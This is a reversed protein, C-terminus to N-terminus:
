LVPEKYRIEWDAARKSKCYVGAIVESLLERLANPDNGQILEPLQAVRDSFATWDAKPADISVLRSEALRQAETLRPQLSLYQETPVIGQMWGLTLRELQAKSESFERDLTKRGKAYRQQAEQGAQQWSDVLEAVASPSLSLALLQQKLWAEVRDARVHVGDCDHVFNTRDTETTRRRNCVFYDYARDYRKDRLRNIYMRGGCLGCRLLGAIAYDSKAPVMHRYRQKLKIQVRDWLEPAVLPEHQGQYVQGKWRIRGAYIPNIILRRIGTRSYDYGTTRLWRSAETLSDGADVREFIERIVPAIAPDFSVRRDPGTSVGLANRPGHPWLGQKAKYALAPKIRESLRRSESENLIAQLGLMLWNTLDELTSHVEVGCEQMEEVAVLTQSARRSFRSANFVVLHNFNGAHAAKLMQRFGPRDGNTAFASEIDQYEAVVAWEHAKCYETARLRQVDLSVSQEGAQEEKSVRLYLAARSM